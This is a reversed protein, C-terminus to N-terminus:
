LRHEETKTTSYLSHESTAVFMVASLYSLVPTLDHAIREECEWRHAGGTGRWTNFPDCFPEIKYRHQLRQRDFILHAAFGEDDPRTVNAWYDAFTPSRTLSVYRYGTAPRKIRNSNLVAVPYRTTHILINGLPAIHEPWMDAIDGPQYDTWCPLKLLANRAAQSLACLPSFAAVHANRAGSLGHQHTDSYHRDPSTQTCTQQM